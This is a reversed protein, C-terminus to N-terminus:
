VMDGFKSMVDQILAKKTQKTTKGLEKDKESIYEVDLMKSLLVTKELEDESRNLREYMLQADFPTKFHMYLEVPTKEKNGMPHENLKTTTVFVADPNEKSRHVIFPSIYSTFLQNNDKIRPELKKKKKVDYNEVDDIYKGLRRIKFIDNKAKKNMEDESDFSIRLRTFSPSNNIAVM